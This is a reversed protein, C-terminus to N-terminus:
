GESATGLGPMIIVKPHGIQDSGALAAGALSRARRAGSGSLRVAFAPRQGAAKRLRNATALMDFTVAISSPMAGDLVLVEVTVMALFGRIIDFGVSAGLIAWSCRRPLDRWPCEMALRSRVWSSLRSSKVCRSIVMPPTPLVTCTAPEPGATITMASIGPM